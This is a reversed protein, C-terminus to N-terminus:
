ERKSHLRVHRMENTEFYRSSGADEGWNLTGINIDWYDVLDDMLEIFQAGEGAARVGLDGYGYPEDLTDIPFRMGIACDDITERMMEMLEVSFRCRNEFAGGYEDTRKNNFPYLFFNPVTALGCFITLLDFGAERAKLAGNVHDRQMKRIEIKTMSRANAMGEMENPIQSPARGPMRSEANMLFSSGHTLEVGALSGHKHISDCM